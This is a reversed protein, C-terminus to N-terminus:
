RGGRGLVDVADAGTLSVEVLVIHDGVSSEDVVGQAVWEKIFKEAESRTACVGRYDFPSEEIQIVANNDRNYWAFM